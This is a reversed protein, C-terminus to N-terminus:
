QDFPGLHRTAAVGVRGTCDALISSRQSVCRHDKYVFQGLAKATGVRVHQSYIPETKGDSSAFDVPKSPGLPAPFVVVRRIIM